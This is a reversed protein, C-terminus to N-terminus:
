GLTKKLDSMASMASLAGRQNKMAEQMEERCAPCLQAAACLAEELAAQSQPDPLASCRKLVDLVHRLWGDERLLAALAPQARLCGGLAQLSLCWLESVEYWCEKWSASVAAPGPAPSSDLATRLFRLVLSFFRRQSATVPGAPATKLRGIMLGLACYNAALVLFGPKSVLSPLTDGLHEELARFCPDSRVRDPETVTFNLLISCMAEMSPNREAATRSNEKLSSWTDKLFDVLLAPTDLGLLVKRPGDEASLHCLAPLLYRLAERGSWWEEGDEVCMLEMWEALQQSSGAGAGAGAATAQLHHRAFGVLVPLLAMIEEKLCSTEEALWVCVCRYTAFVFPENYHAETVQQLHYMLAAFGGELVKFVQRSQQLNLSPTPTSAQPSPASTQPSSASTQPSSASAQPSSASAQPSPASAQPSPASAQPSPASAQPSPEPEADRQCCAQEFAAEMIRYCGALTHQLESSLETGPPGELGVRVEVCARNVLLCCFNPPGVPRWGYLDLLSAALVLIPGIQEATLKSQVMPRLAAWMQVVAERLERSQAAVAPPPLFQALSLCSNLRTEPPARSFNGCLRLLLPLLAASHKRWAGTGTKGLLLSGLLPLGKEASLTQNREVAQCLAVVAGRMLLHDTGKPLVCVAMLVQYCDAAVDEDLKSAGCAEKCTSTSAGGGVDSGTKRKGPSGAVTGGAGGEELMPGNAILGLLIPVTTLLQPHAAMDMDTSLAALLATALSLVDRPTLSPNESRRFATVLLRAPLGLGVASFIRQLTEKDLNKAPCLRTILLLAALIQSDKKAEKLARICSELVVKQAETLPPGGGGGGASASAEESGSGSGSGPGPEVREGEGAVDKGQLEDEAAKDAM